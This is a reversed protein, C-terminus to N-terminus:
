LHVSKIDFDWTSCLDPPYKKQQFGKILYLAERGVTSPGCTNSSLPNYVSSAPRKDNIYKKLLKIDQKSIWIKPAVLVTVMECCHIRLYELFQIPTIKSLEKSSFVIDKPTYVQEHANLFNSITHASIIMDIYHVIKKYYKEYKLKINM